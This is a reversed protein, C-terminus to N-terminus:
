KSYYIKFVNKFFSPIYNELVHLTINTEEWTGVVAYETEVHRKALQTAM